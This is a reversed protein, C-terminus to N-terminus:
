FNLIVIKNSNLINTINGSGASGVIGVLSGKRVNVSINILTDNGFISEIKGLSIEETADQLKQAKSDTDEAIWNARINKVSIAIDDDTESTDQENTVEDIMEDCELFGQLRKVSVYAEALEAVGRVFM